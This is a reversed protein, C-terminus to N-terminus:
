KKNKRELELFRNRFGKADFRGLAREKSYGPVPFPKKFLKQFKGPFWTAFRYLLPHEALFAWIRIGFREVRMSEGDQVVQSRLKLLHHPIDIRM